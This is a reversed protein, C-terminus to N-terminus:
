GTGQARQVVTVEAHSQRLPSKHPLDIPARTTASDKILITRALWIYLWHERARPMTDESQLALQWASEALSVPPPQALRLKVDM